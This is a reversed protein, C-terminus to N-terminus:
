MGVLSVPVHSRWLLLLCNVKWRLFIVLQFSIRIAVRCLKKFIIKRCMVQHKSLDKWTYDEPLSRAGPMGRKAYLGKITLTLPAQDQCLNLQEDGCYSASSFSLEDSDQKRHSCVASYGHDTYELEPLPSRLPDNFNSPTVPPM